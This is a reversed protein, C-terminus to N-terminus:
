SFFDIAKGCTPCITDFWGRFFSTQRRMGSHDIGCLTADDAWPTGPTHTSIHADRNAARHMIMHTGDQSDGHCTGTMGNADDWTWTAWHSMGNQDTITAARARTTTWPHPTWDGQM